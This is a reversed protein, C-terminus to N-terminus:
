NPSAWAASQRLVEMYREAVTAPRHSALHGPAAARCRAVASEDTLLVALRESLAEADGNRFTFGAPGIAEPLGGGASGVAVCGCAVGELAVVGFPENWSSPVVLIRHRSLETALAQGRMVGVFQVQSALSLEAALRKWATEEPGSGIVTLVPALRWRRLYVLAHLLIPLGKVPGLNGLFVLDNGRDVTAVTYFTEDDYPNPIVTSPAALDLAIARSVSISTASRLVWRKMLGLAGRWNCGRPLWTHHAVVWPRRVLLLPWAARLSINNHLVVDAWRTRRLLERASPRRVVEFPLGDDTGDSHSKTVVVIDNGARVIERALLLCVTETGGISPYFAHSFLLIKM